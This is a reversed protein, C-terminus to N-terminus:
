KAAQWQYLLFKLIEVRVEHFRCQINLISTHYELFSGTYNILYGVVILM